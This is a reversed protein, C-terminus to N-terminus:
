EAQPLSCPLAVMSVGIINVALGTLAILKLMDRM